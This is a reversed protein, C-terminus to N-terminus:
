CDITNMCNELSIIVIEKYHNASFLGDNEQISDAQSVREGPVLKGQGVLGTRM